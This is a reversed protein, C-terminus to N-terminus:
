REIECHPLFLLSLTLPLPPIDCSPIPISLVVAVIVFWSFVGVM